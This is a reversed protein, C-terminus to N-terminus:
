RCDPCTDGISRMVAELAGLCEEPSKGPFPNRKAEDRTHRWADPDGEDRRHGHDSCETVAHNEILTGLAWGQLTRYREYVAPQAKARQTSNKM